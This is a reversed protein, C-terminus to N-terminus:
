IHSQAHVINARFPAFIDTCYADRSMMEHLERREQSPVQKRSHMKKKGGEPFILFGINVIDDPLFYSGDVVLFLTYHEPM